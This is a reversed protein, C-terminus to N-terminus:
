LERSAQTPRSNTSNRFLTTRRIILYVIFAVLIAIAISGAIDIPHHVGVYVRSAGVLITLPWLILSIYKNSPFVIAATAASWLVHDSPFGNSPKHPILPTFHDVVFPRADYYLAGGLISVLYVLPLVLAAFILTRKQEPQSEILFYVVAIGIIAYWLYNAAIISLTDLM